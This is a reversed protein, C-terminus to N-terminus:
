DSITTERFTNFTDYLQYLSKSGLLLSREAIAAKCKGHLCLPAWYSICFVVPRGVLIKVWWGLAGFQLFNRHMTEIEVLARIQKDLTKLDQCILLVNYGLKRHIAFFDVFAANNKWNRSNWLVACEDVVLLIRNEGKGGIKTSIDILAEPTLKDNPLFIFHEPHKCKSVNFDFNSVVWRKGRLAARIRKASDLSKGSGPLGTLAEIM